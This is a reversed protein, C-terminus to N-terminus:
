AAARRSGDAADDYFAQSLRAAVEDGNRPRHKPRKALMDLILEELRWSVGTVLDSPCTPAEDLQMRVIEDLSDAEFPRVGTVVEYFVCGLAYVDVREDVREGCLLEPAAYEVTTAVSTPRGDRPAAGRIRSALGFDLLTMRGDGGVFINEPKLDRHVIGQEHLYALVRALRVIMSVADRLRGGAAPRVPWALETEDQLRHIWGDRVEGGELSLAPVPRTPRWGFLSIEEFLTHGELLEMALWPTDNWSGAGRFQVVGRHRLSKLIAIERELCAVERARGNRVTKLAVLEGTRADEAKYITAMGGTALRDLLHFSGLTDTPLYGAFDASDLAIALSMDGGVAVGM